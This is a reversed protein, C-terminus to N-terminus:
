FPQKETNLRTDRSRARTLVAEEKSKWNNLVSRFNLARRPSNKSESEVIATLATRSPSKLSKRRVGISKEKPKKRVNKTSATRVIKPPSTKKMGSAKKEKSGSPILINDEFEKKDLIVEVKVNEVNNKRVIDDDTNTMKKYHKGPQLEGIDETQEPSEQPQKHKNQSVNNSTPSSQLKRIMNQVQEGTKRSNGHETTCAEQRDHEVINEVGHEMVCLKDMAVGERVRKRSVGEMVDLNGMKHEGDIMSIMNASKLSRERMNATKLSRERVDLKDVFVGERVALKNMSERVELRTVGERVTLKDVTAAKKTKGPSYKCGFNIVRERVDLKNVCMGERVALKDMGERVALKDVGERVELVNVGERVALKDVISAKETKGPGNKIM